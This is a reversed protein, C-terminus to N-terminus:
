LIVYARSGWLKLSGLHGVCHSPSSMARANAPRMTSVSSWGASSRLIPAFCDSDHALVEGLDVDNVEFVFDFGAPKRAHQAHDHVHQVLEELVHAGDAHPASLEARDRREVDAGVCKEDGVARPGLQSTEYGQTPWKWYVDEVQM